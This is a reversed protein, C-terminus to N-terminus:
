SVMLIKVITLSVLGGIREFFAIATPAMCFSTMDRTAQSSFRQRYTKNHSHAAVLPYVSDQLGDKVYLM